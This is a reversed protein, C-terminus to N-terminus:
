LKWGKAKQQLDEAAKKKKAIAELDEPTQTVPRDPVKIAKREVAKQQATPQWIPNGAYAGVGNIHDLAKMTDMSDRGCTAEDGKCPLEYFDLNVSNVMRGLGNMITGMRKEIVDQKNIIRANAKTGSLAPTASHPVGMFWNDHEGYGTIKQSDNRFNSAVDSVSKLVDDATKFDYKMSWPNFAGYDLFWPYRDGPNGTSTFAVINTKRTIMERLTPWPEKSSQRILNNFLGVEKFVQTMIEYDYTRDELELIIVNNPNRELWKKLTTLFNKLTTKGYDLSCPTYPLAGGIDTSEGFVGKRFEDLAGSLFKEIPQVYKKINDPVGSFADSLFNGYLERKALGHCCFIQRKFSETSGLSRLAGLAAEAAEKAAKWELSEPDTATTIIPYLKKAAELVGIATKQAIKVAALDNALGQLRQTYFFYESAQSKETVSVAPLKNFDATEKGMKQEISRASDDLKNVEAEAANIKNIGVSQTKKLIQDRATIKAPVYIDIFWRLLDVYYGLFNTYDYHLPVKFMRVGDNLQQEISRDQDNVLSTKNATADHANIFCVRNLKRDCLEAFGNCKMPEEAYVTFGLLGLLALFINM